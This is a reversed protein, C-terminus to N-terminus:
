EGRLNHIWEDADTVGKWSSASKTILNSMYADDVNKHMLEESYTHKYKKSVNRYFSIIKQACRKRIVHRM